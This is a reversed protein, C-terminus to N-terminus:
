SNLFRVKSHEANMTNNQRRNRTHLTPAPCSPLSTVNVAGDSNDSTCALFARGRIATATSQRCRLMPQRHLRRANPNSPHTCPLTYRPRCTPDVMSDLAPRPRCFPLSLRPDSFSQFSRFRFYSCCRDKPQDRQECAQVTSPLETTSTRVDELPECNGLLGSLPISPRRNVASKPLELNVRLTTNSEHETTGLAYNTRPRTLNHTCLHPSVFLSLSPGHFALSLPARGWFTVM